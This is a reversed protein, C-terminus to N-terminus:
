RYHVRALSLSFFPLSLSPSIIAMCLCINRRQQQLFWSPLRFLPLALPPSSRLVYALRHCPSLLACVSLLDPALALSVFQMCGCWAYRKMYDFREAMEKWAHRRSLSLVFFFVDDLCADHLYANSSLSSTFRVFATMCVCAIHAFFPHHYLTMQLRIPTKCHRERKRDEERRESM